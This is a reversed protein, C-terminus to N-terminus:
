GRSNLQLEVSSKSNSSKVVLIISDFTNAHKLALKLADKAENSGDYGVMIKM